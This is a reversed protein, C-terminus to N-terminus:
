SFMSLGASIVDTVRASWIALMINLVVLIIMTVNKIKEAKFPVDVMATVTRRAKAAPTYVTIVTKLFYVCNLVTSAVLVFLAPFMHLPPTDISARIFLIKSVFGALGPVGTISFCGIAFALGATKNRYAAGTMHLMNREGGTADVLGTCSLFLLSKTLTHSFIHYISAIMGAETSLGFGMFIYGIQAVSSYAIMRKIDTEGIADVSGVIMGAIGFVFLVNLIKSGFIVDFGIIRYFFKILLFIYGKSVLSSLIASSSITAYSYADGVYGHFPFLACKIALGVCILVIALLLPYTGQGSAWIKAVMEKINSMLLHGTLGYIFCIGLLIFGSGMLNMILYRIASVTSRGTQSIMILGAAGLTLIEIFVYATFLDNTYVLALLSATILSVIAYYFNVKSEQLNERREMMGGCVCLLMVLCFFAATFAELIGIRIENGWPAPFHGMYYVYSTGSRLCFVFVSLSMALSLALIIFSVTKAWTRKVVACAPGGLITLIISFLPFNQVFEM